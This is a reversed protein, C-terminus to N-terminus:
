YEEIQGGVEFIKNRGDGWKNKKDKYIQKIDEKNREQRELLLKPPLLPLHPHIIDKKFQSDRQM